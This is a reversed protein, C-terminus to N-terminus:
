CPTQREREKLGEGGSTHAREREREREFLYTFDKFLFFFFSCTIHIETPATNWASFVVFAFARLRSCVQHTQPVDLPITHSSCISCPSLHLSSTLSLSCPPWIRDPRMFWQLVKTSVTLSIPLWHFIQTSLYYSRVWIKLITPSRPM